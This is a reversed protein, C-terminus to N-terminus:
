SRRSNIMKKVKASSYKLSKIIGATLIGKTSQKFSSSKVIDSIAKRVHDCCYSDHAYARLIEEYDEYRGQQYKYEILIQHVGGPLLNLHHWQSQINPYQEFKGASKFWHIHEENDLIPEYLKRFHELNPAVIKRIKQQDEGISMRIDGSYSLGTITEYLEVETFTEPLLLLASHIASNLNMNIANKLDSNIPSKIFNVPKHLRGSVYLTEWDLLDTIVKDTSIIGYKILRNEFPILTNFYVGAGFKEQINAIKKAGFLKLFSYHSRNMELNEQHWVLPDEVVFVFDLMNKDKSPHGEQQFVASGYSFAMEIGKPFSPLIRKYIATNSQIEVLSSCFRVFHSM